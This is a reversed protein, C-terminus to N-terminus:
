NSAPLVRKVHNHIVDNDHIVKNELIDTSSNLKEARVSTLLVKSAKRINRKFQKKGVVSKFDKFMEELSQSVHLRLDKKPNVKKPTKNAKAM